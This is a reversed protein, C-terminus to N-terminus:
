MNEFYQKKAEAKYTRSLNVREGNSLIFDDKDLSKIHSLNVWRSQHCRVFVADQMADLLASPSKTTIVEGDTCLLKTRLGVREFSLIDRVRFLKAGESTKILVTIEGREQKILAVAKSLAAEMRFEADHKLIFWVHQVAYVDQAYSLYSSIFIIKCDPILENLRRALSIGDMGDMNIDLVAIEPIFEGSSIASLLASAGSYCCVETENRHMSKLVIEKIKERHLDSDDCVAIKIM